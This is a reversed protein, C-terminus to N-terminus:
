EEFDNHTQIYQLLAKAGIKHELELMKRLGDGYIADERKAKEVYFKTEGISSLMKFECWVAFGENFILSPNKKGYKHICAHGSEHVLTSLVELRPMGKQIRISEGGMGDYSYLGVTHGTGYGKPTDPKRHEAFKKNMEITDSFYVKDAPVPVTMGVYNKFFACAKAYLAKLQADTTVIDRSCYECTVFSGTRMGKNPPVAMGCSHCKDPYKDHCAECFPINNFTRYYKGDIPQRCVACRTGEDAHNRDAVCRACTYIYNGYRDKESKFNSDRIPQNCKSCKVNKPLSGSSQACSICYVVPQGSSDRGEAYRETRGIKRGCKMCSLSAAQQHSADSSGGSMKNGCEACYYNTGDTMGRGTIFKHCAACRKVTKRYCDGCIYGTRTRAANGNIQRRCQECVANGQPQQAGGGRQQMVRNFCSECVDGRQTRVYNTNIIQGCMICESALAPMAYLVLIFAAFVAYIKFKM